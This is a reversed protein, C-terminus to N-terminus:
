LLRKCSRAVSKMISCGKPVQTFPADISVSCPCLLCLSLYLSLSSGDKAVTTSVEIEGDTMIDAPSLPARDDDIIAIRWHSPREIHHAGPLPTSLILAMRLM